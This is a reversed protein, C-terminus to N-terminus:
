PYPNFSEDLGTDPISYTSCILCGPAATQSQGHSLIKIQGQAYNTSGFTANM